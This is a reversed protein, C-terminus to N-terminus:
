APAPTSSAIRKDLAAMWFGVAILAGISVVLPVVIDIDGLRPVERFSSQHAAREVLLGSANVIAHVFITPVISLYRSYIWGLVIGAFFAYFVRVPQVHSLGFLLSALLIANWRKFRKLFSHLIIGRFLTEECVPAIIVRTIAGVLASNVLHSNTPTSRYVLAALTGSAIVSALAIAVFQLFITWRPLIFACMSEQFRGHNKAIAIIVLTPIVSSGVYYFLFHLSHSIAPSLYRLLITVAISFVVVLLPLLTFAQLVSPFPLNLQPMPPNARDFADIEAPTLTPYCDV